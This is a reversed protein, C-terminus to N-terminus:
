LPEYILRWKEAEAAADSSSAPLGHILVDQIPRPPHVCVDEGKYDLWVPVRAKSFMAIAQRVLPAEFNECAWAIDV